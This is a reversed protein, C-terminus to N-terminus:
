EVQIRRYKSVKLRTATLLHARAKWFLDVVWKPTSVGLKSWSQSLLLAVARWRKIQSSHFRLGIVFPSRHQYTFTWLVSSLASNNDKRGQLSWPGWLIELLQLRGDSLHLFVSGHMVLVVRSMSTSLAELCISQLGLVQRLSLVSARYAWRQWERRDAMLVLCIKSFDIWYRQMMINKPNGRPLPVTLWM